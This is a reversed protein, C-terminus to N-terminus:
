ISIVLDCRRLADAQTFTANQRSLTQTVMKASCYKTNGRSMKTQGLRGLGAELISRTILYNEGGGGGGVVSVAMRKIRPRLTKTRRESHFEKLVEPDKFDCAPVWTNQEKEYGQWKVLYEQTELRWALIREFLFYKPKHTTRRPQRRKCHRPKFGQTPPTKQPMQATRPTRRPTPALQGRTRPRGDIAEDERQQMDARSKQTQSPVVSCEEEQERGDDPDLSHRSEADGTQVSDSGRPKANTPELESTNADDRLKRAM